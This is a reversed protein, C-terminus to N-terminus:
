MSRRRMKRKERYTPEGAPLAIGRAAAEIAVQNRMNDLSGFVFSIVSNGCSMARALHSLRLRRIGVDSAVKIGIEIGMKRREERSYMMRPM